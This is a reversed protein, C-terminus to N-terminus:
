RHGPGPRPASPGPQPRFVDDRTLVFCRWLRGDQWRDELYHFGLKAAARLARDNEPAIRGVVKEKTSVRLAHRITARAAELGLGRGAGRSSFVYGFELDNSDRDNRLGARGICWSPSAKEYVMWFGFGNQRWQALFLALQAQVDAHSQPRNGYISAQVLPDNHLAHLEALHDARMARLILHQTELRIM